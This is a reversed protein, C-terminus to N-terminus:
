ARSRKGIAAEYDPVPLRGLDHGQTTGPWPACCSRPMACAARSRGPRISRPLSPSSAGARAAAMPRSSASSAPSPPRSASRAAPIPAPRASRLSRRRRRRGLRRVLRGAGAAHERGQAAVPHDGPRFVVDREVLGHRVRGHQAQRADGRRRAVSQRHRDFEYTPKFDDLIHSGATTRVGKPASCIRSASRFAKWRRRAEGKALRADSAKAMARAKEPTELMYANLARAKEMAALHAEALEIASIKRTRLMDRAQALSLSTLETM